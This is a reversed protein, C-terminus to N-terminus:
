LALRGAGDCAGCPHGAWALGSGQCRDCEIEGARREQAADGQEPTTVDADSDMVLRTRSVLEDRCRQVDHVAARLELASMQLSCISCPDCPSDRRSHNFSPRQRSALELPLKSVFSMFLEPACDLFLQLAFAAQHERLADAAVEHWGSEFHATPAHRALVMDMADRVSKDHAMRRTIEDRMRELDGADALDHLQHWLLERFDPPTEEISDPILVLRLEDHCTVLALHSRRVTDRWTQLVRALSMCRSCVIRVNPPKREEIDTEAM